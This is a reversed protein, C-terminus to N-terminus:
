RETRPRDARQYPQGTMRIVHTKKKIFDLKEIEALATRVNKEVAKHTLMVVPVCSEERFEKQLVSAISISYDGLMTAISALVKPKDAVWFCLYYRTQVEDIPKISLENDHRYYRMPIRRPAGTSINLAVDVIDSLVASATPLEGAGRGYLLIPGVANGDLLVANYV